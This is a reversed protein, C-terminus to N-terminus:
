MYRKDKKEGREMEGFEGVELISMGSRVENPFVSANVCSLPWILSSPTRLIRFVCVVDDAKGTHICKHENEFHRIMIIIIIIFIIVYSM